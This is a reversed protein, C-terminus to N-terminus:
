VDAHNIHNSNPPKTSLLLPEEATTRKNNQEVEVEIAIEAASKACDAKKIPEDSNEEEFLSTM